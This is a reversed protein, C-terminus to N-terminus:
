KNRNRKGNVQMVKENFLYIVTDALAQKILYDALWRMDRLESENLSLVVMAGALPWIFYSPKIGAPLYLDLPSEGYDWFPIDPVYNVHLTVHEHPSRQRKRMVNIILSNAFEIDAIQPPHIKNEYVTTITNM